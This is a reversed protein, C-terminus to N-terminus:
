SSAATPTIPRLSSKVVHCRQAKSVPSLYGRLCGLISGTLITNQRFQDFPFWATWTRSGYRPFAVTSPLLVACLALPSCYAFQKMTKVVLGFGSLQTYSLKFWPRRTSRLSRPDIFPYKWGLLVASSLLKQIM